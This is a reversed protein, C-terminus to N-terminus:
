RKCPAKRDASCQLLVWSMAHESLHLHHLTCAHWGRVLMNVIQRLGRTRIHTCPHHQLGLAGAAMWSLATWSLAGTSPAARMRAGLTLTM